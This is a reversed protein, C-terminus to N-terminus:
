DVGAVAPVTLSLIQSGKKDQFEPLMEALAVQQASSLVQAQDTVRHRFEPAAPHASVAVFATLLWGLLCRWCALLWREASRRGSRNPVGHGRVLRAPSVVHALPALDALHHNVTPHIM